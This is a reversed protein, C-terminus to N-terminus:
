GRSRVCSWTRHCCPAASAQAAASRPNWRFRLQFELGQLGPSHLHSSGAHAFPPRASRPCHALLCASRPPRRVTSATSHEEDIIYLGRSLPRELHGEPQPQWLSGGGPSRQGRAQRVASRRAQVAQVEKFLGEAARRAYRCAERGKSRSAAPLAFMGVPPTSFTPGRRPLPPPPAQGCRVPFLWWLTAAVALCSLLLWRGGDAFRTTAMGDGGFGVDTAIGIVVVASDAGAWLAGAAVASSFPFALEAAMELATPIVLFGMVAMCILCAQANEANLSSGSLIALATAFALVVAQSVSM